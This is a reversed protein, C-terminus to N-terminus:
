DLYYTYHMDGVTLPELVKLYEAAEKMGGRSPDPIDPANCSFLLAALFIVAPRRM